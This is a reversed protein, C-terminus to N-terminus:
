KIFIKEQCIFEDTLVRIIYIGPGPLLIDGGARGKYVESGSLNFVQAHATGKPLDAFRVSRNELITLPCQSRGSMEETGVLVTVVITDQGSGCDNTVTVFYTGTVSVLITQTTAGTSWLYQCGPNGADLLLTQEPLLTTDNGLFIFPAAGDAEVALTQPNSTGCPNYSFVEFWYNGPGGFSYNISPGFGPQVIGNVTWQCSDGPGTVTSYTESVYECVLAPGNIPTPQQVGFVSVSIIEPDTLEGSCLFAVAIERTGAQEWVITFVPLTDAQLVEDVYWQCICALPVETSYESTDGVCASSPGTLTVPGGPPPPPITDPRTESRDLLYNISNGHISFALCVLSIFLFLRM